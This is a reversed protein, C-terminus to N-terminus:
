EEKDKIEVFDGKGLRANNICAAIWGLLYASAEGGHDIGTVEEIADCVHSAEHTIVEVTMDKKSRFYVLIGYKGNDKRTAKDFTVASYEVPAEFSKDDIDDFGKLATEKCGIVVFLKRPYIIPDYEYFGGAHM